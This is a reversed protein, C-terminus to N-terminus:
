ACSHGESKGHCGGTANSARKKLTSRDQFDEEGSFRMEIITRDDQLRIDNSFKLLEEELVDMNLPTRPYDLKQLIRVFGNVDLMGRKSDHIEFAGDTFLLMSDGPMLKGPQEEYSADATLGLAMGCLSFVEMRGDSRGILPPPGGAGTLALSGDRADIVGFVGTAFSIDREFIRVLRKNIAAAISRPNKLSRYYRKWMMDLKMTYLAAAVGHGELDAIIFGYRDGDLKKISIYDGGVLGYPMLTRTFRIRSDDPLEMELSQSLIKAARELEVQMASVDRFTEVAGIVDGTANRIPAATVRTPIRRGGKSLGYVVLPERTTGGTVMARHLPCHENGCLRHGDKDVHCLIDELCRRGVVEDSRWGMIREASKNWYVIRRERDCVYVGDSLCDLIKEASFLLDSMETPFRGHNACSLKDLLGEMNGEVSGSVPVSSDHGMKIVQGM